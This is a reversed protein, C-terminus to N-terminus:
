FVMACICYIHPTNWMDHRRQFTSWDQWNLAFAVIYAIVLFVDVSIIGRKEYSFEQFDDNIHTRLEIRGLNGEFLNSMEHNCDMMAVYYMQPGAKHHTTKTLWNEVYTGNLPVDIEKFDNAISQKEFCAKDDNGEVKLM